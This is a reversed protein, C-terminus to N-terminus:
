KLRAETSNVVEVTAGPEDNNVNYLLLKLVKKVDALSKVNEDVWKDSETPTSGKLLKITSNNNFMKENKYKTSSKINIRM